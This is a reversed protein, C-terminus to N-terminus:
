PISASEKRSLEARRRLSSCEFGRHSIKPGQKGYVDGIGSDAKDQKGIQCNM